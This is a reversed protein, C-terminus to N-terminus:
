QGLCGDQCHQGEQLWGRQKQSLNANAEDDGGDDHEDDGDDDHEDDGGDDNEADGDDDHEADRDMSTGAMIFFSLTPGIVPQCPSMGDGDDDSRVM